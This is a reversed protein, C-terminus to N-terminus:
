SESGSLEVIHLKASIKGQNSGTDGGEIEVTFVSHCRPQRTEMLLIM